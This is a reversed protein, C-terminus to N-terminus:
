FKYNPPVVRIRGTVIHRAQLPEAQVTYEVSQSIAEVLRHTIESKVYAMLSKEDYKSILEDDIALSTNLVNIGRQEVHLILPSKDEQYYTGCYECRMTAPNITGGCRECIMAKM